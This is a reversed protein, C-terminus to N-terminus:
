GRNERFTEYQYGGVQEFMDMYMSLIGINMISLLLTIVLAVLLWAQVARQTIKKHKKKKKQNINLINLQDNQIKDAEEIKAELEAIYADKQAQTLKAM